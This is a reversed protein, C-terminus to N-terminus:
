SSLSLRLTEFWPDMPIVLRLRGPSVPQLYHDRWRQPHRERCMWCSGICMRSFDAGPRLHQECVSRQHNRKGYDPLATWVPLHHGRAVRSLQCERLGLNPGVVRRGLMYGPNPGHKPLRRLFLVPQQKRLFFWQRPRDTSVGSHHRRWRCCRMRKSSCLGRFLHQHVVRRVSGRLLADQGWVCSSRRM